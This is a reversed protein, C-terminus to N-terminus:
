NELLQVELKEIKARYIKASQQNGNRKAAEELATLKEIKEILIMDENSKAQLLKADAEAKKAEAELKKAAAEDAKAKARVATEYSEFVGGLSIAHDDLARGGSDTKSKKRPFKLSDDNEPTPEPSASDEDVSTSSSCAKRCRVMGDVASERDAQGSTTSGKQFMAVAGESSLLRMQPRNTSERTTNLDNFRAMVEKWALQAKRARVSIQQTKDGAANGANEAIDAKACLKPGDTDIWHKVTFFNLGMGKSAEKVQFDANLQAVLKKINELRNHGGKRMAAFGFTSMNNLLTTAIKYMLTDNQYVRQAREKGAGSSSSKNSIADDSVKKSMEDEEFDAHQKNEVQTNGLLSPPQIQQTRSAYSNQTQPILAAMYM